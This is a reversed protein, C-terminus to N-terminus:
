KPLHIIEDLGFEKSGGRYIYKIKKDAFEVKSEYSCFPCILKIVGEKDKDDILKSFLEGCNICETKLRIKAM